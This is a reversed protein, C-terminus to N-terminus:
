MTHLEIFYSCQLIQDETAVGMIYSYRTACIPIQHLIEAQGDESIDKTTVDAQSNPIFDSQQVTLIIPGLLNESRVFFQDLSM